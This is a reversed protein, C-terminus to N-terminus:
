ATCSAPVPGAPLTTGSSTPTVTVSITGSTVTSAVELVGATPSSLVRGGVVAVQYGHPYQVAPVEIATCAGLGFQSGDPAKTAYLVQLTGTGSAFSYSLPTGAVVTPYPEALVKLKAENVNEGTGAEGAKYVLAEISSPITGTPDGCGCYSWEIWPLESADALGVVRGLDAYNDTAGFESLLLAVGTSASHALANAVTKAESTACGSSGLCYDHFSMGVLKDAFSPLGTQVGFNFTVWPEYWIMHHRDVTRVGAFAREYFSALQAATAGAPWPENFLDYGVVWPDASFQKAM